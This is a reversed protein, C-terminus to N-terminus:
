LYTNMIKKFETNDHIIIAGETTNEAIQKLEGKPRYTERYALEALNNRTLFTAFTEDNVEFRWAEMIIYNKGNSQVLRM